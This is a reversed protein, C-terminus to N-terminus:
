GRFGRVSCGSSRSGHSTEFALGELSVQCSLLRSEPIEFSLALPCPRPDFIQPPLSALAALRRGFEKGDDARAGRRVLDREKAREGFRTTRLPPIVVFARRSAM